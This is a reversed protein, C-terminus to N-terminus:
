SATQLNYPVIQSLSEMYMLGHNPHNLKAFLYLDEFLQQAQTEPVVCTVVEQETVLPRAKKDKPADIHSGRASHLDVMTHGQEFLKNVIKSGEGKNLILTISKFKKQAFKKTM